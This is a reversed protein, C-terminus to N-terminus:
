GPELLEDNLPLSRPCYCIVFILFCTAVYAPVVGARQFGGGIVEAEVVKAASELISNLPVSEVTVRHEVIQGPDGELLLKKETAIGAVVALTKADAGDINEYLLPTAKNAIKSWQLASNLRKTKSSRKATRM